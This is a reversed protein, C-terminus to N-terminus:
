VRGIFGEGVPIELLKGTGRVIDGEKIHLSSGLIVAGITDQELNLALGLTNHPFILLENSMVTELGKVSAIGDGIRTVTGVSEARVESASVRALSRRVHEIIADANTRPASKKM